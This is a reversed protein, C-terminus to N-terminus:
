DLSSIAFAYLSRVSLDDTQFFQDLISSVDSGENLLEQAKDVLGCIVADRQISVLEREFAEHSYGSQAYKELPIKQCVALLELAILPETNVHRKALNLLHPVVITGHQSVLGILNQLHSKEAPNIQTFLMERLFYQYSPSSKSRDKTAPDDKEQLPLFQKHSDFFDQIFPHFAYSQPQEDKSSQAIHVFAIVQWIFLWDPLLEVPIFQRAEQLTDLLIQTDLNPLLERRIKGIKSATKDNLFSALENSGSKMRLVTISYTIAIVLSTPPAMLRPPSSEPSKRANEEDREMVNRLVIRKIAISVNQECIDGMLIPLFQDADQYANTGLFALLKSCLSFEDNKVDRKVCCVKKINLVRIIEFDVWICDQISEGPSCANLLDLALDMM